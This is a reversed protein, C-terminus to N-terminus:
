RGREEDVAAQARSRRGQEVDAPLPAKNCAHSLLNPSREPFLPPSSVSMTPGARAHFTVYRSESATAVRDEREQRRKGVHFRISLEYVDM